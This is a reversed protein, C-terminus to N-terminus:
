PGVASGRGRYLQALRPAPLPRQQQRRAIAGDAALFIGEFCQAQLELRRSLLYRESRSKTEYSRRGYELLMGSAAQM